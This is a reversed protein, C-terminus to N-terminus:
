EEKEKPSEWWFVKHMGRIGMCAVYVAWRLMMSKIM